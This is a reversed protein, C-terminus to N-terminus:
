DTPYVVLVCLGATTDVGSGPVVNGAPLTALVAEMEAPTLTYAVAGDQEIGVYDALLEQMQGRTLKVKLKPLSAKPEEAPKAADPVLNDEAEMVMDAAAEAKVDWMAASPAAPAQAKSAKGAMSMEMVADEAKMGGTLRESLPGLAIVVALCAAMQLLTKQWPRMRKKRPEASARVAKMVSEAFGEPVETEEADPFAEKMQLIQAVYMRCAECEALHERVQASEEDTCFGDVYMDLLAAYEECLKM